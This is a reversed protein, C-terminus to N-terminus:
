AALEVILLYIFAIGFLYATSSIIKRLESQKHEKLDEEKTPYIKFCKQLILAVAHMSM